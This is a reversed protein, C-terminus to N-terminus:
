SAGGGAAGKGSAAGGSARGDQAPVLGLRAAMAVVTEARRVFPADIMRGDVMYAGVGDRVAQRSADVVRVAHAIEEDSPRFVENALAIQSPHICSKGLFGLRRSIDAENRYGAQDKVDAFASDYAWVGAEGAALRIQLQVQQV